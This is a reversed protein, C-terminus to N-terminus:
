SCIKYKVSMIFRLLSFLMYHKKKILNVYRPSYGSLDAKAVACVVSENKMIYRTKLFREKFSGNFKKSWIDFLSNYTDDFIRRYLYKEAQENMMDLTKFLEILALNIRLGNEFLDSRYKQSLSEGNDRVYYYYPQERYSVTKCKKLYELNFLLDEGYSTDEPFMINNELIIYKKYLKNVPGYLLFLSNLELFNKKNVNDSYDFKVICDETYNADKNEGSIYLISGVSLDANDESLTKYLGQIYDEPVYDDSDIFAIDNGTSLAIGDNRAASVGGNEKHIVKIRSDENAYKDCIIGSNDKSGDDVLIIEINTYSQSMVSTICRDLYKESNYVPIIISVKDNM